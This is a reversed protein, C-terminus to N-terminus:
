NLSYKGNLKQKTDGNDMQIKQQFFGMDALGTVLQIVATQKLGCNGCTEVNGTVFLNTFIAFKKKKM